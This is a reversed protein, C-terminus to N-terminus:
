LKLHRISWTGRIVYHDTFMQLKNDNLVELKKPKVRGDNDFSIFGDIPGHGTSPYQKMEDGMSTFNGGFAWDQQPISDVMNFDGAGLAIKDGEGAHVGWQAIKRAYMRNTDWNPDNPLKGHTSYHFGAVSFIGMREDQHRFKITPFERDRQPGYLHDNGVVFIRGKKFSRPKIIDRDVAVWNGQAVALVHNHKKAYFGMLDHLANDDGSETGTKVPFAKGKAFLNRVDHEQQHRPDSFQLSTHQHKIVGYSSM